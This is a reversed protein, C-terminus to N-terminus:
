HVNFWYTVSHVSDLKESDICTQTVHASSGTYGRRWVAPQLCPKKFQTVIWLIQWCTVCFRLHSAWSPTVLFTLPDIFRDANKGQLVTVDKFHLQLRADCLHLASTQSCQQSPESYSAVSPHLTVPHWHLLMLATTSSQSHITVCRSHLQCVPLIRCLSKPRHCICMVPYKNFFM